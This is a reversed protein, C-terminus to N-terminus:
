MRHFNKILRFIYIMLQLLKNKEFALQIRFIESQRGAVDISSLGSNGFTGITFNHHQFSCGKSFASRFFFQDAAIPFKKSYYGLREHLDRRILSGVSHSSVIADHCYLWLWNEGKPKLIKGAWLVNFTAIDPSTLIAEHCKLLAERDLYDDSGVVIYYKATCHRIGKNIADYIGFDDSQLIEINIHEKANALLDVTEDSSFKDCIIWQFKKFSQEKLSEILRPIDAASNFTATIVAIEEM